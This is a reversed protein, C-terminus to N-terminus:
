RCSFDDGRVLRDRVASRPGLFGTWGIRGPHHRHQLSRLRERGGCRADEGFNDDAQKKELPLADRIVGFIKDGDRFLYYMTFIVFFMQVLIGVAGGLFGLTQGAIAGSKGKLWELLYEQSRLQELDVFKNLWGLLRGTLPSNPDLFVVLNSQLSQAAGSLERLVAITVLVVPILITLIVLVCSILASLAPRKTKRVLRQHVPYFVIVLGSVVGACRRFAEGDALLSLSRHRDRFAVVM